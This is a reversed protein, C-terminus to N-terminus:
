RRAAAFQIQPSWLRNLQGVGDIGYCQYLAADYGKTDAYRLFAIFERPGKQNVLYKVLGASQGYFAGIRDAGPYDELTLLAAADFATHRAISQDLDQQHRGQKSEDDALIASGEDAWRPLSTTLFEDKLIVHTLEHPLAATLFDSRAGQLDIRRARIQGDTIKVLSSGSTRASGRGVAAVYSVQSSHVLIQCKPAWRAATEDGLWKSKLKTRLSEASQAIQKASSEANLCCVQFNETEVVFWRGSRYCGTQSCDCSGCSTGSPAGAFCSSASAALLILLTLMQRNKM